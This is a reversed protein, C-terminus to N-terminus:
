EWGGSRGSIRSDLNVTPGAESYRRKNKDAYVVEASRASNTVDITGGGKKLFRGEFVLVGGGSVGATNGSITGGTMTFSGRDVNVGGGNSDATNDSITGGAMTFIGENVYVGGGLSAATNSSITGGTMTFSGRGVSVGGGNSDATNGSITGGVMLFTGYGNVIVGSYQADCVISGDKMTLTGGKVSVLSSAKHAGNLTINNDLVLTIGKPITFLVVGGKNWITRRFEDGKLVITKEANSTFVIPDSTFSETLTITYTGGITDSNIAAIANAFATVNSITHSSEITAVWATLIIGLALLVIFLYKKM